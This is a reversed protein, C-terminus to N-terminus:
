SFQGRRAATDVWGERVTPFRPAWGTAGRFKANSVRQSRALADGRHRTAARQVLRPVFHQKRLGFAAAFTDIVERRPLPEDCVNYAGSPLHIADVLAAGADDIHISAMYGDPSGLVPAVGRKALALMEDVSRAQPGYFWGYRLAIGRGGAARFRDIENELRIMSALSGDDDAWRTEEDIWEAGGDDYCFTISEALIAGVGNDLAADVLLRTTDTRLRNNTEWAAPKAMEKLAPIHTALHLVMDADGVAAKVATEDFLDVRVPAVGHRRLLEAKEDTRAVGRVEHGARVLAPVSANGLVGTAGTVFIKM